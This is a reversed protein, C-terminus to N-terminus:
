GTALAAAVDARRSVGLKRRVREAHTRATNPSIGLTRAVEGDSRRAALLRAVACEQATLGFRARLGADDIPAADDPEGAAAGPGAAGVGDREVTLWVLPEPALTGAATLCARASLRLAGAAIARAAAPPADGATRNRHVLAGVGAALTGLESRLAAAVGAGGRAHVDDLLRGLAPNQHLVRGRRDCVLTPEALLDLVRALEVPAMTLRSVAEVGATFAPALARLVATARERAADDPWAPLSVILRHPPGDARFASVAFNCPLGHRLSFDNYFANQRLEEPAAVDLECAVPLQQEIMRIQALDYPAYHERYVRSADEPVDSHLVQHVAGPRMVLVSALGGGGVLAGAAACLEAGWAAASGHDAPALATRLARELHALDASSLSASM